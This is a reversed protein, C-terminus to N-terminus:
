SVRHGARLAGRARLGFVGFLVAFVAVLLWEVSGNGADPDLGTTGEIWEPWAWTLMLLGFSLAALVVDLQRRLWSV